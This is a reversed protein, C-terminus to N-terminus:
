PSSTQPIARRMFFLTFGLRTLHLSQRSKCKYAFLTLAVEVSWSGRDVFDGNFLLCHTESPRGTLDMLHVLDYFQGHTDGIVDCTVGDELVADVLSEEKVLEAHCGLIIEWAYRRPLNKGSKFWEIM